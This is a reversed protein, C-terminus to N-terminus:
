LDLMPAEFRNCVLTLDIISVSYATHETYCYNINYTVPIM